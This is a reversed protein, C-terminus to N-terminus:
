EGLGTGQERKAAYAVALRYVILLVFAGATAALFGVPGIPHLNSGDFLSLALLGLASGVIGVAITAAPGVPQRAPFVARALLGALSGFGIWILAVQLWHQAAPSLAYNPDM